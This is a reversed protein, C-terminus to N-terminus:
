GSGPVYYNHTKNTLSLDSVSVTATVGAFTCFAATAFIVDVIPVLNIIMLFMAVLINVYNVYFTTKGQSLTRQLQKKNNEDTFSTIYFTM